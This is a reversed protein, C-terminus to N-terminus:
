GFAGEGNADRRRSQIFISYCKKAFQVIPKAFFVFFNRIPKHPKTVKKNKMIKCILFAGKRNQKRFFRRKENKLM